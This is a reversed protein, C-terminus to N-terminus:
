GGLREPAVGLRIKDLENREKLLRLKEMEIKLKMENYRQRERRNMQSELMYHMSNTINDLGSTDFNKHLYITSSGGWPSHHITGSYMEGGFVSPVPFLIFLCAIYIRVLQKM